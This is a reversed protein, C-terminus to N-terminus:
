PGWGSAVIWKDQIASLSGNERSERGCQLQKAVSCLSVEVARQASPDDGRNVDQGHSNPHRSVDGNQAREGGFDSLHRRGDQVAAQGDGVEKEKDGEGELSVVMEMSVMPRQPLGQTSRDRGTEIAVEVARGLRQGTDADLAVNSHHVRKHVFAEGLPRVGDPHGHGHPPYESCANGRLESDLLAVPDQLHVAGGAM